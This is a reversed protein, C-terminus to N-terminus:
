DRGRKAQVIMTRRLAAFDALINASLFPPPPLPQRPPEGHSQPLLGRRSLAVIPGCHGDRVLAIAFDIMTLGTGLLLVTGDKPVTQAANRSWADGVYFESGLVGDDEVGPPYPPPNGTAIVAASVQIDKGLALRITFGGSARRTVSVAEDPVLYFRGVAGSSVAAERLLSALYQGYTHRSVFCSPTVGGPGGQGKAALWDMFHGPNDFTRLITRVM